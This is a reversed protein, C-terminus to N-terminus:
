NNILKWYDEVVTASVPRTLEKVDLELTVPDKVLESYYEQILYQATFRQDTLVCMTEVLVQDLQNALEDATLEVSVVGDYLQGKEKLTRQLVNQRIEFLRGHLGISRQRHDEKLAAHSELHGFSGPKAVIAQELEEWPRDQPFTLITDM